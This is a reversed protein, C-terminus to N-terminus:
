SHGGPTRADLLGPPHLLRLVGLALGGGVLQM